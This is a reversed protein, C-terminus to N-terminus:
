KPPAPPKDQTFAKPRPSGGEAPVETYRKAAEEVPLSTVADDPPQRLIQREVIFIPLLKKKAGPLVEYSVNHVTDTVETGVPIDIAVDAPKVTGVEFLTVDYKFESKEHYASTETVHMAEKPVWVGNVQFPVLVEEHSAMYDPGKEYRQELRSIMNGHDPDLWFAWREHERGLEVKVQKAGGDRRGRGVTVPNGRDLSDRLFRASPVGENGVQVRLGLLANFKRSVFNNNEASRVSATPNPRRATEPTVPNVAAKGDWNVTGEMDIEGNEKFYEYCALHMWLRADLRRMEYESKTMFRRAGTKLDINTCTERLQYRFNGLARDRADLAGLVWRMQGEPSAADFAEADFHGPEPALAGAGAIALRSAVLVPLMGLLLRPYVSM